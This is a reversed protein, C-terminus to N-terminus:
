FTNTKKRISPIWDLFDKTKSLIPFISKKKLLEESCDGLEEKYNM